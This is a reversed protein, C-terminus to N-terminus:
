SSAYHRRWRSIISSIPIRASFGYDKGFAVSMIADLTFYQAVKWFDMPRYESASSLYKREVFAVFAAVHSDVLAELGENDKGSYQTRQLTLILWSFFHASLKRGFGNEVWYQYANERRADIVIQWKGTLIRCSPVFSITRLRIQNKNNPIYSKFWDDRCWKPQHASLCRSITLIRWEGM